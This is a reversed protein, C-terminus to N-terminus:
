GDRILTATTIIRSSRIYVPKFGTEIALSRLRGWLPERSWLAQSVHFSTLSRTRIVKATGISLRFIYEDARSIVSGRGRLILVLKGGDVLLRGFEGLAPRVDPFTDLVGCCLIGDFSQDKFPTANIDGEVLRVDHGLIKKKARIIYEHSFDLGVVLERKKASALYRAWYGPGTGADLLVRCGELESALWRHLAPFGFRWILPFTATYLGASADYMRRRASGHDEATKMPKDNKRGDV